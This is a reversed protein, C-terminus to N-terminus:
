SSEITYWFFGKRKKQPELNEMFGTPYWGISLVERTAPDVTRCLHYTGKPGVHEQLVQLTMGVNVNELGHTGGM